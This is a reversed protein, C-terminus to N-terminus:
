AAAGLAVLCLPQTPRGGGGSALALEDYGGCVTVARLELAAATLLLSQTLRGAELLASRAGRPGYRLTSVGTETGLMLLVPAQEAATPRHWAPRPAAYPATSLLAATDVAPRPSLLHEGPLYRYSGAPIGSVRRVVVDLLLPHTTAGVGSREPGPAAPGSVAGAALGLLTALRAPDLEGTCVGPEGDAEGGPGGQGAGGLLALLEPLAPAGMLAVDVAPLPVPRLRPPASRHAPRPVAHLPVPTFHEGAAYTHDSEGAAPPVPAYSRRGAVVPHDFVPWEFVTHDFVPRRAPDAPRHVPRPPFASDTQRHATDAARHATGASRHATGAAGHAIDAARRATDARDQPHGARAPGDVLPRDLAPGSITPGSVAPGAPEGEAHAHATHEPASRHPRAGLSEGLSERHVKVAKLFEGTARATRVGPLAPGIPQDFSTLSGSLTLGALWTLFSEDAVSVGLRNALMHWQGTLAPWPGSEQGRGPEAARAGLAGPTGPMGLAGPAGLVQLRRAYDHVAVAWRGALGTPRGAEARLRAVTARFREPQQEYEQEARARAAPVEVRPAGPRAAAALAYRRLATGVTTEDFGADILGAVHGALLTLATGTRSAGAIIAPLAEAAIESSFQFMDEGLPMAEPGGYRATEPRYGPRLVTGTPQWGIAEASRRTGPRFGGSQLPFSPFPETGPLTSTRAALREAVGDALGPLTDRLRLRIHPGGEWYRLAFWGSALGADTARRGEEAAALYLHDATSRDGHAFVHLSEWEPAITTTSM